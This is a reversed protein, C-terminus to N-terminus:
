KAKLDSPLAYKSVYRKCTQQSSTESILDDEIPLKDDNLIYNKYQSLREYIHDMPVGEHEQADTSTQKEVVLKELFDFIKHDIRELDDSIVSINVQSLSDQSAPVSSEYGKIDHM